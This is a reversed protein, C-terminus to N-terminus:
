DPKEKKPTEYQSLNVADFFFDFLQYLLSFLLGAM